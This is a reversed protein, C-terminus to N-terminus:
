PRYKSENMATVYDSATGLGELEENLMYVVNEISHGSRLMSLVARHIITLNSDEELQMLTNGEM